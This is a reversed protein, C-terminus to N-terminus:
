LQGGHPKLWFQRSFSLDTPASGPIVQLAGNEKVSDDFALWVSLVPGGAIGWYRGFFCQLDLSPWCFSGGGSWSTVGGWTRIGPWMHCHRRELAARLESWQTNASSARTWCSSTLAWSPKSWRYSRPTRPWSGYGPISSTSMTSATSPTTKVQSCPCLFLTSHTLTKQEERKKLWKCKLQKKGFEEELEAFARRAERLETEKLVPLATLFGQQDYLEKLKAASAEMEM